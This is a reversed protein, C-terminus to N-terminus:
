DGIKLQSRVESKQSRVASKQSRVESKQSRVESKQSRSYRALEKAVIFDGM